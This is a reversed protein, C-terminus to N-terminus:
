NGPKITSLVASEAQAVVPSPRHTQRIPLQHLLLRRRPTAPQAATGALSVGPHCTSCHIENQMCRGQPQEHQLSLHRGPQQAQQLRSSPHSELELHDINFVKTIEISVAAAM